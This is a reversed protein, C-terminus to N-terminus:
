QPKNTKLHYLENAQRDVTAKLAEIDDKIKRANRGSVYSNIAIMTGLAVIAIIGKQKDEM